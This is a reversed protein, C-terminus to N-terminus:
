QSKLIGVSSGSLSQKLKQVLERLQPYAQYNEERLNYTKVSEMDLGERLAHVVLHWPVKEQGCVFAQRCAHYISERSKDVVLEVEDDEWSMPIPFFANTTLNVAQSANLMLFQHNGMLENSNWKFKQGPKLDKLKM